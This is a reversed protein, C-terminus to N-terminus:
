REPRNPWRLVLKSMLYTVPVISITIILPSLIEGMGADEVLVVLLFASAVYQILYVLPYSFFGRWSLPVRFVVAANFWYAFVIGFLYAILYAFQYYLILNLVLYVCYTFATNIGGGM